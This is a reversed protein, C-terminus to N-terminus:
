FVDQPNDKAARKQEYLVRTQENLYASAKKWGLANCIVDLAILILRLCEMENGTSYCTYAGTLRNRIGLYVSDYAYKEAKDRDPTFPRREMQDKLQRDSLVNTIHEREEFVDRQQEINNRVVNPKLITAMTDSILHIAKNAVYETIM